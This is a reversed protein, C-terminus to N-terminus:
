LPGGAPAYLAITEEVMRGVDYRELVRRRAEAALRRAEEPSGLLSVIGEALSDPDGPECLIGTQGPVVNERVGGVPAAVVPVGAAQAEIVAYCLGEFLSPLAFVDFSALLAPVDDREGLFLFRDALGALRVQEELEGRSEGDGVLVFRVDPHRELVRPAAEVLFRQGKQPVLRAVNGVLRGDRELAPVAATFRELDIGYYVVHATLGTRGDTLRDSESTYVVEPRMAWGLRRWLRGALNDRRPLEPTHHTVILRPVRALRAAVFAAPWPDNVHVLRPRLRRLLRTLRAVVKPTPGGVLEAPLPETRVRGGAAAAFPATAPVDPYALVVDEDGGHLGEAVRLFYREIAGLEPHTQLMVIM